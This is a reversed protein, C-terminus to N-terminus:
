SGEPKHLLLFYGSAEKWRSRDNAVPDITLLQRLNGALQWGIRAESVYLQLAHHNGIRRITRQPTVLVQMVLAEEYLRIRSVASRKM